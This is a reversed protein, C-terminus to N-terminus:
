EKVMGFFGIDNLQSIREKTLRKSKSRYLYRQTQGWMWLSRNNLYDQPVNCHGYKKKFDCLQMYRQNWLEINPEWIFDIEKLKTLQYLSLLKKKYYERMKSVWRGFVSNSAYYLSVNCHGYKEKFDCLQMYKKEWVSNNPSWDFGMQNLINLMDNKLLAKNYLTRQKSVWRALPPNKSFHQPVNCHGFEQKFKQLAILNDFNRVKSGWGFGINELAAIKHQLLDGNKHLLRQTGAWRALKQNELYQKPINCHGNKEKFLSAAKYMEDWKKSQADWVFGIKNLLEIKSPTMYSNGSNYLMRQTIVWLALKKNEAKPVSTHGYIEKFKCLDFYMDDWGRKSHWDIGLWELRLIRQPLLINKRYLTKQLKFWHALAQNKKYRSPVRCHGQEQVFSILEGFKEDWNSGLNEIINTTIAKRLDNICLEPGLIEIYERLRNDNIGLARGREERLQAIIEVLSEDQEQMAQLVDWIAAFQTKELAQELSENEAIQVFLPILIYGCIKGDHKRMARGAAQVIDVKSKKPSVFVVMDVAPINVGETLCRANSIIAKEAEKFEQLIVDRKSTTMEGNVHMTSFDKLYAGIGENTKVTFSKAAAVSSHFSFIRKLEHKKVASQIALINAIRQAKIIDGDVVVEGHKLLERNVMESTVVSILVKYDCILNQKVADRFSLQHSIRGYTNQDDMSFIIQQDGEKNKTNVNYHRPTATLFLRKKISLNKDQLAFACNAGQRSATKHAEDFIALDFVFGQPMAQAVIQCSQYTSFIIKRQIAENSFFKSVIEKQTTVSFDIDHQHLVTEDEGKVVTEDSCVCLFNFGDWNNDKAWDHLTQRILALSPLLVLIAQAEIKEAVSLAVLTKGTGCAMVATTRNSIKLENLIDNIAELQYPFPKKKIRLVIGTKLWSEIAQFDSEDLDDLDNGKISYFDARTDTIYSLDNSNTFLVRESVRDTQGFFKGLGDSDWTLATRNTRFKVQYARYSGLNTRIVGDVGADSPIGLLDRLSQPLVKEPWVEQAQHIMRTTFYAEAFVEFADGREELPLNTIRNELESFSSLNSFLDKSFFYSAKKHKPIM